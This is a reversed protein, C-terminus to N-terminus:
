KADGVEGDDVRELGPEVPPEVGDGAFRAGALGDEDVRQVQEEAPPGLRVEDPRAVVLARDFPEELREVHGRDVVPEVGGAQRGQSSPWSTTRRVTWRSPRLRAQTFPASAVM